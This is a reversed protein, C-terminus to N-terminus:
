HSVLHFISALPDLYEVGGKDRDDKTIQGGANIKILKQELLTQMVTGKIM